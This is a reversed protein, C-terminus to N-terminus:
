GIPEANAGQLVKLRIRHWLAAADSNIQFLCQLRAGRTHHGINQAMQRAGGADTAKGADTPTKHASVQHAITNIDRRFNAERASIGPLGHQRLGM